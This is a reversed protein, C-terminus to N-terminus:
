GAQGATYQAAIEAASLARDWVAVEDLYGHWGDGTFSGIRIIGNSLGNSSADAASTVLAGDVYIRVTSGDYTVVVHYWTDITYDYATTAALAKNRPAVFRIDSGSRQVAAGWNAFTSPSVVKSIAYRIITPTATLQGWFKLTYPKNADFDMDSWDAGNVRDASAQDLLIATDSDGVLAGPQAMTVGSTYTADFGNGTEDTAPDSTSSEGLRWYALPGQSLILERYGQNTSVYREVLYASVAAGALDQASADDADIYVRLIDGSQCPIAQATREFTSGSTETWMSAPSSPPWVTTEVGNRTRTVWLSGGAAYSDWRTAILVNYYGDTNIVITDTGLTPSAVGGYGLASFGDFSIAEGGVAISQTASRLLHWYVGSASSSSRAAVATPSSSSSGDAPPEERIEKQERLYQIVGARIAADGTLREATMSVDYRLGSKPDVVYNVAAVRSTTEANPPDLVKVTDGPVYDVLPEPDNPGPMVLLGDSLANTLGSALATSAATAIETAGNLDRDPLYRELRGLSTVGGSDESIAWQQEGGEVAQVTGSPRFRKASRRLVDMGTSVRVTNSTSYDADMGAPNYLQFLWLGDTVPDPVIRGEYGLRASETFCRGYSWGRKMTIEVDSTDWANGASDNTADFDLQLWTSGPNAEDEWVIRTASHDSTADNFLSVWVGGISTPAQGENLEPLATYIIPPDIGDAGVHAVRFKVETVDDFPQFDTITLQTWTNATVTTETTYNTGAANDAFDRLVLRIDTDTDRAYVYVSAQYIGGPKVRVTKEIGPFYPERGNWVIATTAGTPLAPDFGDNNWMRLSQLTGHEIDTPSFESSAWGAPLTGGQTQVTATVFADNQTLAAGTGGTTSDTISVTASDPTEFTITFGGSPTGSVTCATVSSLAELAAEVTAAADNYNLAGTTQGDATLTYTGGTADIVLSWTGVMSGNNTSLAIPVEPELITVTWPGGAAGDVELADVVSTALLANYVALSTADYDIAATTDSGSATSVSITFTGDDTGDNVTLTVVEPQFSGRLEGLVNRGGWIHDPFQSTFPTTGDWDYPFVEADNLWDLWDSGSVRWRDGDKDPPVVADVRWEHIPPYTQGDSYVRILARKANAMDSADVRLLVDALTDADDFDPFEFQGDGIGGARSTGSLRATLADAYLKAFTSAGPRAWVEARLDPM